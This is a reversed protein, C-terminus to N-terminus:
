LELTMSVLFKVGLLDSNIITLHNRLDVDPNSSHVTVALM